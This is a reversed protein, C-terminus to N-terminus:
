GTDNSIRRCFGTLTINEKAEFQMGELQFTEGKTLSMYAEVCEIPPTHDLELNQLNELQENVNDIDWVNWIILIGFGILIIGMGIRLNSVEEELTEIKTKQTM